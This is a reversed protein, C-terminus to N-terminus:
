DLRWGWLSRQRTYVRVSGDYDGCVLQKDDPSFAVALVPSTHIGVEEVLKRRAVDWLKLTKDDGASAVFRGDHSFAVSRIYSKHEGVVAVERLPEVSWLRVQGQDQGTVFSRSDPAFALSILGATGGQGPAGGQNTSGIQRVTWNNTEWLYVQNAPNVGVLWRGDPSFKVAYFEQSQRNNKIGFDAVVCGDDSAHVGFSTALWKQNPSLSVAYGFRHEQLGPITFRLQIGRTGLEWVITEGHIDTSFLRQGDPSFEIASIRNHHASLVTQKRGSAIDWLIISQDDGASAIMKGGPAYAVARVPHSHGIFSTRQECAEVDWVMLQADTYSAVLLKSDPTFALYSVRDPYPFRALKTQTQADWLIITEGGTAVYRGNPSYAAARARDRHM